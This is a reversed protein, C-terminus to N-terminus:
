DPELEILSDAEDDYNFAGLLILYDDAEVLTQKSSYEFDFLLVLWSIELLNKKKAKSMLNDIYSSSFSCAGAIEQIAKLGEYSGNTEMEDPKFYRIKFNNSWQNKARTNNKFFSEEFYDDPIEAYPVKSAWVSVKYKKDFLYAKETHQNSKM